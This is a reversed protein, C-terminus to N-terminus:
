FRDERPKPPKAENVVVNRGDLEKGDLAAIAKDADEANVFTVFGFGKSRGMQDKIVIAEEVQGFEAFAAEFAEPSMGWSLNGVFLKKSM